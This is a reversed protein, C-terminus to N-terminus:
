RKLFYLAQQREGIVFRLLYLGAALRDTKFGTVFGYDLMEVVMTKGKADIMSIETIDKPKNNIFIIDTTPNPFLKLSSNFDLHVINSGYESGSEQIGKVRFFSRGSMVPQQRIAYQEHNKGPVAQLYDLLNFNQGDISTEILFKMINHPDDVEWYLSALSGSQQARLRISQQSLAVPHLEAFTWISNTIRMYPTSLSNSDRAIHAHALQWHTSDDARTAFFPLGIFGMTAEAIIKAQLMLNDTPQSLSVQWYGSHSITKLPYRLANDGDPLRNSNFQVLMAISIPGLSKLNLPAFTLSDGIPFYISSINSAEIKCPGNIFSSAHGGKVLGKIILL